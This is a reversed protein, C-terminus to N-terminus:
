KKRVGGLYNYTRVDSAKIFALVAWCSIMSSGGQSVFPLTVGTLPLVDTIGFINLATQFLLLGAAAVAAISYFTSRAAISNVLASVAIAVFSLVLLLGFLFGWEECIVGFILDTTRAWVGRTTGAGIGLGLLGGSALGVLVRTQQYGSDNYHEWVHRYVSFRATVYSKYKIVIFGGMAASALALFITKIDGSNMFAIILFTVFFILATGFDKIVILAGVCVLSFAIFAYLNKSTQIKELTAAGVFIFAVKVFESPQFTVGFITIWNRAGHTVKAIAINVILLLIAAVAVPLRLRMCLDVDGMLFVLVIFGIVGAILMLLQKFADDPKISGIVAIGVGSLFFAIFELEFNRRHMAFYFVSVYLWELVILALTCLLVKVEFTGTGGAAAKFSDHERLEFEGRSDTKVLEGPRYRRLFEIATMRRAAIIQEETVGPM